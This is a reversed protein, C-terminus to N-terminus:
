TGACNKLFSDSDKKDITAAIIALAPEEDNIAETLNPIAFAVEPGLWPRIDEKFSISYEEELTSEIEGPGDTRELLESYIDVLQKANKMDRFNPDAAMYFDTGGPVIKASSWKPGFLSTLSPLFDTFQAVALLSALTLCCFLVAAIGLGIFLITKTKPSSTNQSM